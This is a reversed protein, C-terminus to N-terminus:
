RGIASPISENYIQLRTDYINEVFHSKKKWTTYNPIMIILPIANSTPCQRCSMPILQPSSGYTSATSLIIQVVFSHTTKV